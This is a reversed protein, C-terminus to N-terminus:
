NGVESQKTTLRQQCQRSAQRLAGFEPRQRLKALLPDSALASTACYNQDIASKILTTALQNEGCHALIAAQYYRIEPDREAVLSPQSQQVVKVLQPNYDPELCTQLIAPYWVASAPMKQAAERAEKIRRGRLLVTPIV